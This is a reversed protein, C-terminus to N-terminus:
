SIEKLAKLASKKPIKRKTSTVEFPKFSKGYISEHNKIRKM